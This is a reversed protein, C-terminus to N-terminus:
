LTKNKGQGAAVIFGPFGSYWCDFNKSAGLFDFKAQWNPGLSGFFSTASKRKEHMKLM